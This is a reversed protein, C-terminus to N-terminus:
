LGNGANYGRSKISIIKSERIVLTKNFIILNYKVRVSNNNLVAGDKSTSCFLNSNM